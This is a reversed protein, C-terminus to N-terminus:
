RRDSKLGTRRHLLLGSGIRRPQAFIEDNKDPDDFDIVVSHERGDVHTLSLRLAERTQPGTAFAAAEVRLFASTLEDLRSRRVRCRERAM